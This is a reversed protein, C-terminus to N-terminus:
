DHALLAVEKRGEDGVMRHQRLNRVHATIHSSSLMHNEQKNNIRSARVHKGAEILWRLLVAKQLEVGSGHDLIHGKPSGKRCGMLAGGYLGISHCKGTPRCAEPLRIELVIEVM